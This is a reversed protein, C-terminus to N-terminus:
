MDEDKEEKDIKSVKKTYTDIEKKIIGAAAGNVLAYVGDLVDRVEVVTSIDEGGGKNYYLIRLFDNNRDFLDYMLESIGCAVLKKVGEGIYKELGSNTARIQMEQQTEFDIARVGLVTYLEEGM